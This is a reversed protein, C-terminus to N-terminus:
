DAQEHAALLLQGYRDLAINSAVHHQASGHADRFCRQLVSDTFIAGAGAFHFLNTAAAVASETSYALMSVVRQEEAPELGGSTRCRGDAEGLVSEGLARAADIQLQAKGLEYQFAGRDALRGDSGRSKTTAYRTVEDLLRQCVGLTFGLNEGSVYAQYGVTYMPGGRRPGDFPDALLDNPVFVRELTVDVSGTGKLAMVRWDDGLEADSARVVAMRVSPQEAVEVAPLFLWEAHPAGSAYRYTGSMEIGGDVFRFTGSPASVAAFFPVADGGFVTEIGEPGLLAGCMGAAGAHNFGTWGATPNAHSLAEFYRLQDAMPLQDGGIEAPVKVMPVRLDRMADVLGDPARGLEDAEGATADLEAHRREIGDVLEDITRM